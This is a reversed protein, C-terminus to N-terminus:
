FQITLELEHRSSNTPLQEIGALRLVSSRRHNLRSNLNLRVEPRHVTNSSPSPSNRGRGLPLSLPLTHSHFVGSSPTVPPELDDSSNLDLGEPCDNRSPLEPEIPNHPPSAISALPDIFAEYVHDDRLPADVDFPSKSWPVITELDMTEQVNGVQSHISPGPLAQNQDVEWKIQCTESWITRGM